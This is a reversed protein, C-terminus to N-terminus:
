KGGPKKAFRERLSPPLAAISEDSLTTEAPAVSTPSSEEPQETSMGEHHPLKTLEIDNFHHPPKIKGRMNEPDSLIYAENKAAWKKSDESNMWNKLKQDYEEALQPNNKFEDATVDNFENIPHTDFPHPVYKDQPDVDPVHLYAAKNSIDLPSGVQIEEFPFGGRHPHVNSTIHEHQPHPPMEFYRYNKPTYKRNSKPNPRRKWGEQEEKWRNKPTRELTTINSEWSQPRPTDITFKGNSHTAMKNALHVMPIIKNLHADAVERNGHKLASKYHAVHHSLADHIMPIEDEPTIMKAFSTIAGNAKAGASAHPLPMKQLYEIIKDAIIEDKMISIMTHLTPNDASKKLLLERFSKLEM